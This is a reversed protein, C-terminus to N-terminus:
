RMLSVACKKGAYELCFAFFCKIRQLLPVFRSVLNYFFRFLWRTFRYFRGFHLPLIQTFSICFRDLKKKGLGLRNARRFLRVPGFLQGVRDTVRPLTGFPKGANV